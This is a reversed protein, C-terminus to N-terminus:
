NSSEGPLQMQLTTALRFTKEIVRWAPQQLITVGLIRVNRRSPHAVTLAM